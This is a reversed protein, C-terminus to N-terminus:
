NLPDDGVTVLFNDTDKHTKETGCNDFGLYNMYMQALFKFFEAPMLMKFPSVWRYEWFGFSMNWIEWFSLRRKEM